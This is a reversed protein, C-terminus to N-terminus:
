GMVIRMAKEDFLIITIQFVIDSGFIRFTADMLEQLNGFLLEIYTGFSLKDNENVRAISIPYPTSPSGPQGQSHYM